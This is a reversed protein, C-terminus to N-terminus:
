GRVRPKRRSLAVGVLCVAGGLIALLPPVEGFVVLALLIVLPPVVYTSISLRGAPVRALAYGWTTFALATPVAGLYVAGLVASVPADRLDGALSGAFPLCAITGAVCGLWTVQASPLNRLLPKQVLVGIAYTVAAVLCWIVGAADVTGTFAGSGAGILIVGAFAVGAGIALWKPIGEGLFIGAGLAILIPGINVLMATTGADLTQEATNLAVNYAGFWAVGFLALALWERSSPRVWRGRLVLLGLLLSGVLLRALALAGGSFHEGTGRIVVFASAWALM